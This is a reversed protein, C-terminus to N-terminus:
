VGAGGEKQSAVKKGDASPLMKAGKSTSDQAGKEKSPTGVHTSGAKSGSAGAGAASRNGVNRSMEVRNEVVHSGVSGLLKSPNRGQVKVGTSAVLGNSGVGGVRVVPAVNSPGTAVRGSQFQGSGKVSVKGLAGRGIVNAISGNSIGGPIKQIVGVQGISIRGGGSGPITGKKMLSGIQSKVKGSTGTVELGRFRPQVAPRAGVNGQRLAGQESKTGSAGSSRGVKSVVKPTVSQGQGPTRNTGGGKQSTGQRNNPGSKQSNGKTEDRPPRLFPFRKRNLAEPTTETPKYGSKFHEPTEICRGVLALTPPDNPGFKGKTKASAEAVVKLQSPHKETPISPLALWSPPRRQAAKHAAGIASQHRRLLNEDTESAKPTLQGSKGDKQLSSLLRDLCHKYSRTRRVGIRVLPNLRLTDSVLLMNNNCTSLASILSLDEGKTWGDNLGSGEGLVSGNGGGLAARGASTLRRAAKKTSKRFLGQNSLPAGDGAASGGGVVSSGKLKSNDSRAKKILSGGTVGRVQEMRSKPPKQRESTAPVKVPQATSALALEREREAAAAAATAAAAAAAAQELEKRRKAERELKRKRMNARAKEKQRQTAFMTRSMRNYAHPFFAADEACELGAAATGSVVKSAKLEEPGGDRLPLYLKINTDTDTLAKLYSKRGTESIDLEYFVPDDDDDERDSSGDHVTDQDRYDSAVVAGQSTNQLQENDNREGLVRSVTFEGEWGNNPRATSGDVSPRRGEIFRLAYRQVPTLSSEVEIGTADGARKEFRSSRTEIEPPPTEEFEQQLEREERAAAYLAFKERDDEEALLRSTVDQYALTTVEQRLGCSDTGQRGSGRVGVVGDFRGGAAVVEATGLNGREAEATSAETGSKNRSGNLLKQSSPISASKGNQVQPYKHVQLVSALDNGDPDCSGNPRSVAEGLVHTQQAAMAETTFGADSIVITELNRKENARRLINEEVTESSVLRFIHVPKTQGIRHVRDQAQSDVAPNYDTDYFIVSDAGTLNLGVGGARTTLIMCFIRRDTNFREVVKQRDDTKTTGDLRLYRLSHLNLFSELVDLVKTMQTFILARSGARRLKRLLDDLVQLKGCDWQVLRTEPITVKSRVEYPRFMSRYPSLSERFSRAIEMHSSFLNDDGRYRFEVVPATAKRLSCVFREWLPVAARIATRFSRVLMPACSPVFESPAGYNCRISQSLSTPTMTIVSRLDEGFVAQRRANMGVKRVLYLLQSRRYATVRGVAANCPASKQGEKQKRIIDLESSEVLNFRISPSASIREAEATYWRGPWDQELSCLNLGLLDLNVLREQAECFLRTILSPVPYFVGRMALPSIIRRGEFLDPHNCVKRLQMLVNMVSLFDGSQLTERVDSRAMFDEYLQRQRKSLPCKIVHEHKAPLGKEVDAKLRRLLFPRLIDHLTSVIKNKENSSNGHIDSAEQLPKLFWDKFESHSEFVDPMLFHMLSWLEMVSNQLPTGTILLRRQSSFSLLTQWRQSEFNKINHAEDLILYVWKKRRLASADQVALNYSTICVHFINPKTWGQRKLKREKVSGFYTLVKFGPLWKKFEVEWNVIVSTPVVILHPGWIGREVALWALLSIAQITKGLGMEDALVGNLSQQFLSILWDMGAKQYPRLTGRLLEVPIRATSSSQIPKSAVPLPHVTADSPINSPRMNESFIERKDSVLGGEGNSLEKAEVKPGDPLKKRPGPGLNDRASLSNLVPANIKGNGASHAHAQKDDQVCNIAELDRTKRQRKLVPDAADDQMEPAGPEVPLGSVDKQGSSGSEPQTTCPGGSECASPEAEQKSMLKQDVGMEKGSRLTEEARERQLDETLPDDSEDDMPAESDEASVSASSMEDESDLYSKKDAKYVAPDIGQSRLLDEVSMTAEGELRSVEGADHPEEAEAAMLTSEDDLELQRDVDAFEGGDNVRECSNEQRTAQKSAAKEDGNPRPMDSSPNINDDASRVVTAISKQPDDADNRVDTNFSVKKGTPPGAENVSSAMALDKGVISTYRATRQLLKELEKQGEQARRAEEAVSLRYDALQGIQNWFRRIDRAISGAIRLVRQHEEARARVKRNERQTHYQLILKSIKKAMHIKWKREERFDTSMWLAEELFCDHFTKNRKAEPQKPLRERALDANKRNIAQARVIVSQEHILKEPPDPEALLKM